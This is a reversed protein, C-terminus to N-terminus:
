SIAAGKIQAQVALGPRLGLAGASRRSVRALLMAGGADLQVMVHGPTDDALARVSVPLINLISTDAHRSLTLSVDRALVRVVRQAGVVASACPLLLEGGEFRLRAIRDAPDHSVVRVALVAQATDGQALSLDLRTLMEATSGSAQVGGAELLVVHRALQAVEDPAHTVILAPIDLENQMAQLCPLLEARRKLDLAALPEDLLLVRPGAALARGIAVRQREGGSLHQPQRALLPELDLLALVHDFAVQPQGAPVRRRAFELNGRVSLHPFLAGQQFVMGVARRHPPLFYPLADDQWVEGGVQLRGPARLLGAVARLLSTKGVGSPGFIATFGRGPLSLDLDLRFGPYAFAFRAEIPASGSM